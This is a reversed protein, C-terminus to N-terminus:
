PRPPDLAGTVATRNQKLNQEFGKELERMAMIAEQVVVICAEKEGMARQLARESAMLGQYSRVLKGREAELRKIALMTHGEEESLSRLADDLVRESQPKSERITIRGQARQLSAAHIVLAQKVETLSEESGEM